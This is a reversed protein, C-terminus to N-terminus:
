PEGSAVLGFRAAQRYEDSRVITRVMSRLDFGDQFAAALGQQLAVESGRFARGVFTDFVRKTVCRAFTMEEPDLISAALAQPGGEINAAYSGNNEGWHGSFVYSHLYGRYDFTPDDEPVLATYYQRCRLTNRMRPELCTSDYAPFSEGPQDPILPKIGAQTWRGWHAAVPEISVHCYSCGCRKTLNDEDHCPDDTSPLGGPPAQFAECRFAHYFRNTRGRNSQFKALFAPLTLVGAHMPSRVVDVWRDTESFVLDQPIDYGMAGLVMLASGPAMTQYRLFHAIPGNIQMQRSTLMESYPRGDRVIADTFRLLQEEWSANVMGQVVNTLCWRLGPGCGCETSNVGQTTGCNLPANGRGTTRAGTMAEQADFACVKVRRDPDWYPAVWVWGEQRVGPEDGPWTQIAGDGDLSSERNLCSIRAGRYRTARNNANMWYAPSSRNPTTLRWTQGTLRQRRINTWLLDRHYRRMRAVFGEGGIMDDIQASSVQGTEIVWKYEAVDPLRGRLDLSLRRLYQLEL